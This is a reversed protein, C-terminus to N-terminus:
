RVKLTASGSTKVTKLRPNGDYTLTSIGSIEGSLSELCTIKTKSLGNIDVSLNNVQFDFDTLKGASSLDLSAATATGSLEVKSAGNLEIAAETVEVDGKFSATGGSKISFSDDKLTNNLEVSAAGGLMFDNLKETYVHIKSGSKFLLATSRDLKVMLTGSKVKLKIEKSTNDAYEIVIKEKKGYTVVVEFIGDVEIKNFAHIKQTRAVVQVKEIKRSESKTSKGTNIKVNGGDLYVLAYILFGVAGIFLFLPLKKM